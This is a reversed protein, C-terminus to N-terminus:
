ATLASFCGSCAPHDVCALCSRQVFYTGGLSYIYAAHKTQSDHLGASRLKFRPLGRCRFHRKSNPLMAHLALWFPWAFDVGDKKFPRPWDLISSPHSVQKHHLHINQVQQAVTTGFFMRTSGQEYDRSTSHRKARYCAGSSALGAWLM